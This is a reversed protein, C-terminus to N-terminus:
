AEGRPRFVLNSQRIQAFEGRLRTERELEGVAGRAGPAGVGKVDLGRGAVEGGRRVSVDGNAALGVHDLDRDERDARAGVRGQEAEYHGGGARRDGEAEGSDPREEEQARDAATPPSRVNSTGSGTPTPRSPAAM